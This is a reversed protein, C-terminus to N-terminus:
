VTLFAQLSTLMIYLLGYTRKEPCPTYLTVCDTNTILYNFNAIQHSVNYMYYSVVPDM